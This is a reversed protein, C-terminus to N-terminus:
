APRGPFCLPGCSKTTAAEQPVMDQTSVQCFVSKGSTALRPHTSNDINGGADDTWNPARRPNYSVRPGAIPVAPAVSLGRCKIWACVAKSAGAHIKRATAPQNRLTCDTMVISVEAPDHYTTGHPGRVQWQMFHPGRALHFRVAYM